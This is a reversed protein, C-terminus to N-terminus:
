AASWKGVGDNQSSIVGNYLIWHEVWSVCLVHGAMDRV